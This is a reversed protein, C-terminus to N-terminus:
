GPPPEASSPGASPRKRGFGRAKAEDLVWKEIVPRGDRFEVIGFKKMEALMEYTNLISDSIRKAHERKEKEEHRQRALGAATPQGALGLRHQQILIDYILRIAKLDGQAAQDVLQHDVVERLPKKIPKGNKFGVPTLQDLFKELSSAKTSGKPRGRKNPSPGGKKWQHERPPKGKGVRYPKADFRGDKHSKGSKGGPSAKQDDDNM